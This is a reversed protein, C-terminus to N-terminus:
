FGPHASSQPAARYRAVLQQALDRYSTPSQRQELCEALTYSMLGYYHEETPPASEPRPLEPATEWPQAAYFAVLSGGDSAANRGTLQLASHESPSVGPSRADSVTPGARRVANEIAEQPVGLDQPRVSRAREWDDAGRSMSGSHCCDFVIWVDAGQRRMADLWNGIQDDRLANQLGDPDKWSAVDAPLFVEDMGDPEPNEADLSDRNEPVPVQVGHGAMLIFIQTNPAANAVLREFALTINACTPRLEPADPWGVLRTVNAAPFGFGNKDSTLLQYYRNTDNTPGYLTNISENQYETCGILLAYQQRAPTEAFSADVLLSTFVAIFGLRALVSFAPTPVNRHQKMDDSERLTDLECPDNSRVETFGPSGERPYM